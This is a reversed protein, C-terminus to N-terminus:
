SANALASRILAPLVNALGEGTTASGAFQPARLPNLRANMEDCPVADAADRHNFFLVLPVEQLFSRAGLQKLVAFNETSRSLRSDAVFLMSDLDACVRAYIATDSLPSILTLLTARPRYEAIPLLDIPTFDFSVLSASGIASESLEGREALPLSSHLQRLMTRKGAADPGFIAFRLRVERASYDLEPM